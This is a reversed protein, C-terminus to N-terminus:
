PSIKPEPQYSYPRNGARRPAVPARAAQPTERTDKPVILYTLRIKTTLAVAMGAYPPIATAKHRM